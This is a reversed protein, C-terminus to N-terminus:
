IAEVLQYLNGRVDWSSSPALANYDRARLLRKVGAPMSALTEPKDEIMHTLGLIEALKAKQGSSRVILAGGAHDGFKSRLWSDTQRKITPGEPRATIFYCDHAALLGSIAGFDPYPALTQWRGETEMFGYCAAEQEQTLGAAYHWNWELPDQDTLERPAQVNFKRAMLGAYTRNFNAAVGDIDIGIKARM